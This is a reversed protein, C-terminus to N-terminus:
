RNLGYCTVDIRGNRYFRHSIRQSKRKSEDIWHEAQLLSAMIWTVVGHCTPCSTSVKSNIWWIGSTSARPSHKSKRVPRRRWWRWQRLQREQRASRHHRLTEIRNQRQNFYNYRQHHRRQSHHSVAVERPRRAYAHREYLQIGAWNHRAVRPKVPRHDLCTNTQKFDFDSYYLHSPGSCTIMLNVKM